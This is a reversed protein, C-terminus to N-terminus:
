SAGHSTHLPMFSELGYVCVNLTQKGDDHLEQRFWAAIFEELQKDVSQRVEPDELASDVSSDEKSKSSEDLLTSPLPYRRDHHPTAEKDASPSDSQQATTGTQDSPHAGTGLASLGPSESPSSDHTGEPADPNLAQWVRADFRM